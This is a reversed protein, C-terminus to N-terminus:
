QVIHARKKSLKSSIGTLKKKKGREGAQTQRQTKGNWALFTRYGRYGVIAHVIAM